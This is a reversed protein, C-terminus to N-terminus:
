VLVKVMMAPNFPQNRLGGGTYLAHFASLNLSAITDNIFFDLHGQPLWDQM